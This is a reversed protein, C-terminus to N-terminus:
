RTRPAARLGRRQIARAAFSALGLFILTASGPEPVVQVSQAITMDDFGFGDLPSNSNNFTIQTFPHQTDIIGFYLASGSGALVPKRVAIDTTTSVTLLTVILQGGGDGVDTACFGFAAQPKSFTIKFSGSNFLLLFQDGSIPYTGNLTGTPVNQITPSGSLSATDAGFTLIAPTSGVAFGDFHETSVGAILHSLFATHAADSNPLSSPRKPDDADTNPNDTTNLDEGFFVQPAAYAPVMLNAIGLAAAIVSASISRKTAKLSLRKMVVAM